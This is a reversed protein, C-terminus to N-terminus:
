KLRERVIRALREALAQRNKGSATAAEIVCFGGDGCPFWLQGETRDYVAGGGLGQVPQGTADRRFSSQLPNGAAFVGLEIRDRWGPAKPPTATGVWRCSDPGYQLSSVGAQHAGIAAQIETDPLLSCAGTAAGANAAAANPKRTDAQAAAHSPSACAASSLAVVLVVGARM